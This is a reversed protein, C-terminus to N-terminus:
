NERENGIERQKNNPLGQSDYRMSLTTQRSINDHYTPLNNCPEDLYHQHFSFNSTPNLSLLHCRDTGERMDSRQIAQIYERSGSNKNEEGIILPRGQVPYHSGM